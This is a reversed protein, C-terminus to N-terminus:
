KKKNGIILVMIELSHSKSLGNEASRSSEMPEAPDTFNIGNFIMNKSFSFTLAVPFKISGFIEFNKIKM